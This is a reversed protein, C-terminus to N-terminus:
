AMTAEGHRSADVLKSTRGGLEGDFEELFRKGNGNRSPGHFQAFAQYELTQELPIPEEALRIFEPDIAAVEEVMRQVVLRQELPVDFQQCMRWYRHLTLGSITHYLHAHTAVPLVYRAVEQCRKKIAGAWRKETQDRAPFLRRYEAQVVPRMLESLRHYAAMQMDVADLYIQRARGDLPPVTVNGPKVEVYRQSVQESNYFPHAHLFSWIFQRSVKEMVFQFTPHQITTHHGAKYISEAIRDRQERSKDDRAVDEPSIVSSSYCTRATAVALNYPEQFYHRLRIIPEPSLTRITVADSM